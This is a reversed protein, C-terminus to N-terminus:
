ASGSVVTEGRSTLWVGSRGRHWEVLGISRLHQLRSRVASESLDLGSKQVEVAISRRGLGVGSRNAAYLKVLIALQDPHLTHKGNVKKLEDSGNDYTADDPQHTNDPGLDVYRRIHVPLSDVTFSGMSTAVMYDVCHELERVNGPWHYRNMYAMADNNPYRKDNLKNLFYRLLIPIDERRERLPPVVVPIVCLRHYLDRRFEGQEVLHDLSRNSATLIRVNVPIPERGGVRTVEGEELVRLLAAQANSSLDAVEDLFLMGTDAAEFLSPSGNPNAGTFAGKVYGFLEAEVLSETLAACNLTQLSQNFRSSNKHISRAVLEKGTGSEGQILIPFDYQSIRTILNKLEVIPKSVGVIGTDDKESQEVRQGAASM